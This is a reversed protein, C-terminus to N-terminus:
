AANRHRVDVRDAHVDEWWVMLRRPGHVVQTLLWQFM